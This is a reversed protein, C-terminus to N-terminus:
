PAIRLDSSYRRRISAFLMHRPNVADDPTTSALSAKCRGAMPLNRGCPKKWTTGPAVPDQHVEEFAM